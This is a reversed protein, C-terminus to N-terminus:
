FVEKYFERTTGFGDFARNVSDDASADDEEARALVASALSTSNRCDFITRRGSTPAAFAFSARVSREGRLNATTLLTNLAAERVDKDKSELLKKLLHPPTICNRCRRTPLMASRP